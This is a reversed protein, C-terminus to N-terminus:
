KGLLDCFAEYDMLDDETDLRILDSLDKIGLAEEISSKEPLDELDYEEDYHASYTDGGPEIFEVDTSVAEALGGETAIDVRCYVTDPDESMPEFFVYEGIGANWKGAVLFGSREYYSLGNGDVGLNEASYVESAENYPYTYIECCIWEPCGILLLEPIDDDNLYLLKYGHIDDESHEEEWIEALTRYYEKWGDEDVDTCHDSRVYHYLGDQGTYFEYFDEEEPEFFGIMFEGGDDYINYCIGKSGDPNEYEERVIKGEYNVDDEYSYSVVNGEPDISIHGNSLSGDIYWDGALGSYDGADAEEAKRPDDTLASYEDSYDFSVNDPDYVFVESVKTGDILDDVCLDDYGDNNFDNMYMNDTVTDIDHIGDKLPCDPFPNYEEEDPALIVVGYDEYAAALLDKKGEPTNWELYVFFRTTRWDDGEIDQGAEIDDYGSCGCLVASLLVAILFSM